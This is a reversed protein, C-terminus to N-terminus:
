RTEMDQYKINNRDPTVVRGRRVMKGARELRGALNTRSWETLGRSCELQSSPIEEEKRVDTNQVTHKDWEEECGVWVGKM